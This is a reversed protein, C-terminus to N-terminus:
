RWKATLDFKDLAHGMPDKYQHCANCVPNQRHIETRQRTTLPKGNEAEKTQELDPV